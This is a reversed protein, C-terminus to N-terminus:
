PQSRKLAGALQNWFLSRFERVTLRHMLCLKQHRISAHQGWSYARFNCFYNLSFTFATLTLARRTRKDKELSTKLAKLFSDTLKEL